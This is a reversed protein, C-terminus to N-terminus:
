KASNIVSYILLAPLALCAGFVVWHLGSIRRPAAKALVSQARSAGLVQQLLELTVDTGGRSNKWLVYPTYILGFPFGWWGLLLSLLSFLTARGIGSQGSRVYLISSGRTFTMVLISICYHHVLFRGGKLIDQEIDRLTMGTTGPFPAQGVLLPRDLYADLDQQSWTSTAQAAPAQSDEPRIWIDSASQPQSRPLPPPVSSM